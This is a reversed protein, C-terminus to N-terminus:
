QSVTAAPRELKSRDLPRGNVWVADLNRSNRIDSLPNANLVIFDAVKGPTLTGHTKDIGLFRAGEASAAKLVKMAPIGGNVLIEMERHEWLGSLNQPEASDSGIAFRVGAAVMKANEKLSAENISRTRAFNPNNTQRDRYEKSRMTQVVSPPYLLPLRTDNLFDNNYNARVIDFIMLTNHQRALTIYEDDISRQVSHTIADVGRRMLAKGLDPSYTHAIVKKDHKHSEDIIAAFIEPNMAPMNSEDTVWMKTFAIPGLPKAAERRVMERAEEVTVPQHLEPDANNGTARWGGPATFGNGCSYVVAGGLKGARQDSIFDTMAQQDYGLSIIHTVGFYLYANLARQISERTQQIRPPGWAMADNDVRTPENDARNRGIHSHLAYIAPMITKGSANVRQAGSPIAVSARKGVSRILGNEIVMVADEVPADAVGDIITMGEIVTAAASAPYNLLTGEPRRGTQAHSSGGAIVVIAGLTVFKHWTKVVAERAEGVSMREARVVSSVFEDHLQSPTAPSRLM